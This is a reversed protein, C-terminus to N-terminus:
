LDFIASPNKQWTFFNKSTEQLRVRVLEMPKLKQELLEYFERALEEGTTSKFHHNLHAGSFKKVIEATLIDDLADRDCCLGSVRDIEGRVTVELYYDHGHTKYCKGFIEINRKESLASSSLEHMASFMIRRTLHASEVM